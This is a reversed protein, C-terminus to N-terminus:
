RHRRAGLMARAAILYTAVTLAAACAMVLSMSDENGAYFLASLASGLVGAGIQATGMMAATFGATKPLPELALTTAVPAIMSVGFVFVTVAGWFAWLPPGDLLAIVVLALASLGLVAMGAALVQMPPRRGLLSRTILAGGSYGAAAIAFILGFEFPAVGYQGMVVTSSSTIMALYGAFPLCILLVCVLSQRSALLAGVSRALQRTAPERDPRAHTEPVFLRILVITTAGFVVSALVTARWGWLSTLGGGIMPGLLPALGLIATMVAMLAAGGDRGAVDRVIARAVVAGVAGFFGQVLRTAILVEISRSLAGVAGTVVFIGLCAFIVPLRGFRDSALGTPLQGLAFGALYFTVVLQAATDGAGLERRIAPIAPLVIDITLAAIAILFGLAVIFARRFGGDARRLASPRSGHAPDSM